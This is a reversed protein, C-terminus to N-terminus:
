AGQTERQQKGMIGKGLAPTVADAESPTWSGGMGKDTLPSCLLAEGRFLHIWCKQSVWSAVDATHSDRVPLSRRTSIQSMCGSGWQHCCKAEGSAGRHHHFAPRVGVSVGKDRWVLWLWTLLSMSLCVRCLPQLHATPDGLGPSM